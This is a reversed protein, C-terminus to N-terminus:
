YINLIFQQILCIINRHTHGEWLYRNYELRRSPKGVAYDLSTQRVYENYIKIKLTYIWTCSLLFLIKIALKQTFFFVFCNIQELKQLKSKKYSDDSLECKSEYQLKALVIIFLAMSYFLGFLIRMNFTYNYSLHFWKEYIAITEVKNFLDNFKKKTKRESVVVSFFDLKLSVSAAYCCFAFCFIRLTCYILRARFLSYFLSIRYCCTMFMRCTIYIIFSYTRDNERM